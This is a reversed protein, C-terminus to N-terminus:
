GAKSHIRASKIKMEKALQAPNKAASVTQYYGIIDNIARRVDNLSEPSYLLIKLLYGNQKVWYALTWAVHCLVWHREINRRKRVQYHDMMFFDKLERFCNEIGWRLRYLDVIKQASLRSNNTILIHVKKQDKKGYSGFLIVIKLPVDCDKLKSKFQYTMVSKTKGDATELRVPKIKHWYHKKVLTVLEDQQM